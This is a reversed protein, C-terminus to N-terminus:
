RGAICDRRIKVRCLRVRNQDRGGSLDTAAATHHNVARVIIVIDDATGQVATM